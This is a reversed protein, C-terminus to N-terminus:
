LAHCLGHIIALIEKMLHLLFIFEISALIDYANNADSRLSYNGEETAKSLIECTADYM